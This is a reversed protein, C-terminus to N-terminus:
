RTATLQDVVSLGTNSELLEIRNFAIAFEDITRLQNGSGSESKRNFEAVRAGSLRISQYVYPAGDDGLRVFDITVNTLEDNVVLAQYIHLSTPGPNKTLVIPAYQRVGSARATSTDSPTFVKQTYSLVEFHRPSNSVEGPFDGARKGKIAVFIQDAHAVPGYVLCLCLLAGLLRRPTKTNM